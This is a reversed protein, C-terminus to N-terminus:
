TWRQLLGLLLRLPPLRLLLKPRLSHACVLGCWTLSVLGSLVQVCNGHLELLDGLFEALQVRLHGFGVAEEVHNLAVDRRLGLRTSGTSRRSRAAGEPRASPRSRWTASDHQRRSWRACKRASGPHPAPRRRAVGPCTTVGPPHSQACSNSPVQTM